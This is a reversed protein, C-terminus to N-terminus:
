TVSGDCGATATVTVTFTDGIASSDTTYWQMGKGSTTETIFEAPTSTSAQYSMTSACEVPNIDFSPVEYQGTVLGVSYTHFM